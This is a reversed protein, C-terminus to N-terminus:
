WDHVIKCGEEVRDRVSSLLNEFESEFDVSVHGTRVGIEMEEAIDELSSKMDCCLDALQSTAFLVLSFFM